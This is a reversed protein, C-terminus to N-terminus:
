TVPKIIQTKISKIPNHSNSESEWPSEIIMQQLNFYDGRRLDSIVFASVLIHICIPVQLYKADLAGLTNSKEKSCSTKNM